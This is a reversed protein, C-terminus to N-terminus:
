EQNVNRCSVTEWHRGALRIELEEAEKRSTQKEGTSFTTSHRAAFVIIRSKDCECAFGRKHKSSSFLELAFGSLSRARVPWRSFRLKGCFFFSFFRLSRGSSRGEFMMMTRLNRSSKDQERAYKSAKQEGDTWNAYLNRTRERSCERGRKSM